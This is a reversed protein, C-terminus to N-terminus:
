LSTLHTKAALVATDVVSITGRGLHIGGEREWEKLIRSIVERATGLEFSITQHTTTLTPSDATQALMWAALRVDVRQFAVEEVITIVAALRHSLLRFLYNRWVEYEAMWTQIIFAPILLARVEQVVEAIAPFPEHSLICSATVICCEQAEIRYLTIERGNEGLKYVRVAGDLVLALHTCADGQGCIMQGVPFTHLRGHKVVAAQAERSAPQLFPFKQILEALDLVSM